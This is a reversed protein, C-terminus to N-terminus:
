QWGKIRETNDVDSQASFTKNIQWQSKIEEIDEIDKPKPAKFGRKNYTAM